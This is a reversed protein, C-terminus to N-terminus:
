VCVPCGNCLLDAREKERSLEDREALSETQSTQTTIETFNTHKVNTYIVPLSNLGNKELAAESPQLGSLQFLHTKQVYFHIKADFINEPSSSPFLHVTKLLQRMKWDKKKRM